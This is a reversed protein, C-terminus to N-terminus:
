GHVRKVFAVRGTFEEFGLSEYLRLAPANSRDVACTVEDAKIQRVDRLARRMVNSGVRRGRIKPSLGVYVLEVSRHAPCHSMLCCGEPEGGLMVIWWRRPDFVGTAAHSDVVDETPRMGCLAPCDLTDEYSRDLARILVARRAPDDLDGVPELTVGEPLPGPDDIRALAGMPARLYALDGVRTFGAQEFSAIAWIEGPEPLAQAVVFPPQGDGGAPRSRLADMAAGIAAVRESAQEPMTGCREPEGPPSLFLMATRGSGPVALCVQRVTPAGRADPGMMGYLLGLDIGVSAANRVFRAAADAGSSPGLLRAAAARHLAPPIPGITDHPDSM